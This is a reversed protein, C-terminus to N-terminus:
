HLSRRPRATAWSAAAMSVITAMAWGLARLATSEGESVAGFFFLMFAVLHLLSRQWKVWRAESRWFWAIAVDMCWWAAFVADTVPAGVGPMDLMRPWDSSSLAAWCFHALFALLAVTWFALWYRAARGSVERFFALALPPTALLLVPWVTFSSRQLSGQAGSPAPLDRTFWAAAIAGSFTVLLALVGATMARLDPPPTESVLLFRNM